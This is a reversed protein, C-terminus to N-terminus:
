EERKALEDIDGRVDIYTGLIEMAKRLVFEIHEQSKNLGTAKEDILQALSRIQAETLVSEPDQVLAAEEFIALVDERSFSERRMKEVTMPQGHFRGIPSIVRDSVGRMAILLPDVSPLKIPEVRFQDIGLPRQETTAM